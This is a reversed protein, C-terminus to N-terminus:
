QDAASNEVEAEFIIMECGQVAIPQQWFRHNKDARMNKCEQYSLDYKEPTTSACASTVILATIILAFPIRLRSKAEADELHLKKHILSHGM